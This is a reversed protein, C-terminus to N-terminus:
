ARDGDDAAIETLVDGVERDIAAIDHPTLHGVERRM